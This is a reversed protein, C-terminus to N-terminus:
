GFEADIKERRYNFIKKTDPAVLARRVIEGLPGFPVRYRVTDRILTGGDTDEFETARTASSSSSRRARGQLM